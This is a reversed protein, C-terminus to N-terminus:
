CFIEGECFQKKQEESLRPINLNNFFENGNEKDQDTVNSKYLSHYFRKQKNLIGFLDSTISGSILLKKM